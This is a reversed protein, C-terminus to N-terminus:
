KSLWSKFINRTKRLNTSHSNNRIEYATDYQSPHIAALTNIDTYSLVSKYVRLDDVLVDNLVDIASVNVQVESDVLDTNYIGTSTITQRIGNLYIDQTVGKKWTTIISVFESAWDKPLILQSASGGGTNQWVIRNLGAGINATVTMNGPLIILVANTSLSPAQVWFAITLEQAGVLSLDSDSELIFGTGNNTSVASGVIGPDFGLAGSTISLDNGNAGELNDNFDWYELYKLLSTPVEPPYEKTKAPSLESARLLFGGIELAKGSYIVSEAEFERGQLDLFIGRQDQWRVKILEPVVGIPGAVPYGDNLPRAWFIADDHRQETSAM